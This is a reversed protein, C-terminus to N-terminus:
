EAVVEAAEEVKVAASDIAAEVAEGAAEVNVAATDVIAEVNEANSSTSESSECSAFAFTSAVFAIAFFKKMISIKKSKLM